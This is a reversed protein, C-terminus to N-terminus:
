KKDIGRTIPIWAIRSTPWSRGGGFIQISNELGKGISGCVFRAVVRLNDTPEQDYALFITRGTVSEATISPSDYMIGTTNFSNTISPAAGDSASTTAATTHEQGGRKCRPTGLHNEGCFASGSPLPAITVTTAVYRTPTNFPFRTTCRALSAIM